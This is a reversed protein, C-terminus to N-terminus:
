LYQFKLRKIINLVKHISLLKLDGDHIIKKVLLSKIKQNINM